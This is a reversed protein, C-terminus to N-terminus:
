NYPLVITQLEPSLVELSSGQLALLRSTLKEPRRCRNLVNSNLIWLGFRELRGLGNTLEDSALIGERLIQVELEEEM